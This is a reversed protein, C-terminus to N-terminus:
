FDYGFFKLDRKYMRRVKDVDGPSYYERYHRREFANSHPLEMQVGIADSVRKFDAQLSEFRGIFHVDLRGNKGIIYDLQNFAISKPYPQDMWRELPNQEDIMETCDLFESFSNSRSLLYRSFDNHMGKHTMMNWWSVLRDFPNRVFCCVFYGDYVANEITDIMSHHYGLQQSGELQNLAETVSTGATKQIHVFLFRHKHNIIM